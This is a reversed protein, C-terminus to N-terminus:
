VQIYYSVNKIFKYKLSIITSSYGGDNIKFILNHCKRFEEDAWGALGLKSNDNSNNRITIQAIIETGQTVKDLSIANGNRTKFTINGALNNQMVKEEGM